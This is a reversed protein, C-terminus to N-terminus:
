FTLIIDDIVVHQDDMRFTFTYAGPRPSSFEFWGYATLDDEMRMDRAFDGGAAIQDYRHGLNDTLYILNNGVDSRKGFVFGEGSYSFVESLYFTMGHASVEVRDISITGRYTVGGYSGTQVYQKGVLPYSGPKVTTQGPMTATAVVSTVPGKSASTPFSEKGANALFYVM